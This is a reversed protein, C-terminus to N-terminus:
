AVRRDLEGRLPEYRQQNTWLRHLVVALKRAVAVAARKKAAKGGRQAIRLGHRRLDCDPGFPGLVYHASQVLLQRLFPDGQKSIHLQPDRLGSQRRGPTLGLYAGVKRSDSFRSPQELTLVFALSTLPGVGAIQRLSEVEPHSKALTEIQRDYARIQESLEGLAALVPAVGARLPEALSGTARAALSEASCKPLRVGVAKLAGRLHNALLTRARVLAARSRLLGLDRQCQASRHRIPALLEPDLRALRALTRGDFRDSKRRSHSILRVKRPNAVLVEHGWSALLRSAWPSHTGVELAIRMAPRGEFQRALGAPTTRVRLERETEGSATDVVCVESFRDGLDLGVTLAATSRKTMALRGKQARSSPFGKCTLCLRDSRLSAPTRM